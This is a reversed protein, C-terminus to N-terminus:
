LEKMLNDFKKMVNIASERAPRDWIESQVWDCLASLEDLEIDELNVDNFLKIFLYRRQEETMLGHFWDLDIVVQAAGYPFIVPKPKKTMM